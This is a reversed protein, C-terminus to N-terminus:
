NALVMGLQKLVGSAITPAPLNRDYLISLLKRLGPQIVKPISKPYVMVVQTAGFKGTAELNDLCNQINGTQPQEHFIVIREISSYKLWNGKSIALALDDPNALDRMAWHIGTDIGSYPEAKRIENMRNAETSNVAYIRFVKDTEAQLVMSRLVIQAIPGTPRFFATLVCKEINPM